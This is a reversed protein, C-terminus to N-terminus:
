RKRRDASAVLRARVQDGSLDEGWWCGAVQGIARMSLGRSRLERMRALKGEESVRERRVVSRFRADWQWARVDERRRAEWSPDVWGKVTVWSPRRGIEEFLLHRIKEVTWGVKFLEQARAPASSAYPRGRNNM